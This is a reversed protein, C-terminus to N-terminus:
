CWTAPIRRKWTQLAQLLLGVANIQAIAPAAPQTQASRLSLIRKSAFVRGGALTLTPSPSYVAIRVLTPLRSSHQARDALFRMPTLAQMMRTTLARHLRVAPSVYM